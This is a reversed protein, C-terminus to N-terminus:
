VALSLFGVVQTVTGEPAGAAVALSGVVALAKRPHKKVADGLLDGAKDAANGLAKLVKKMPM